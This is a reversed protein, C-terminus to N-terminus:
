KRRDAPSHAAVASLTRSAAQLGEDGASCLFQASNKANFAHRRTRVAFTMTEFAGSDPSARIGRHLRLKELNRSPAGYKLLLEGNKCSGPRKVLAALTALCNLFGLKM